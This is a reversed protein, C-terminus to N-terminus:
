LTLCHHLNALPNDAATACVPFCGIPQSTPRNVTADLLPASGHKLCVALSFPRTNMLYTM